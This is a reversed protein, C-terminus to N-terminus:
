DSKAKKNILIRIWTIEFYNDAHTVLAIKKPPNLVSISTAIRYLWFEPIFFMGFFFLYIFLYIIFM